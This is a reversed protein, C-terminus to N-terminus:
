NNEKMGNAVYHDPLYTIQVETRVIRSKATYFFYAVSAAFLLAFTIIAIRSGWKQWTLYREREKLPVSEMLENAVKDYDGIEANIEELTLTEAGSFREELEQRLGKLIEQKQQRKLRLASGVSHCYARLAADYTM